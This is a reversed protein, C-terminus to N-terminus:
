SVQKNLFGQEMGPGPIELGQNINVFPRPCLKAASCHMVVVTNDSIAGCVANLMQKWRLYTQRQLFSAMTYFHAM